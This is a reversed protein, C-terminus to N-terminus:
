RIETHGSTIRANDTHILGVHERPKSGHRRSSGLMRAPIYSDARDHEIDIFGGTAGVLDFSQIKTVSLLTYSRYNM